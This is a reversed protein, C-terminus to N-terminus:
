TLADPDSPHGGHRLLPQLNGGVEQEADRVQPEERVRQGRLACRDAIRDSDDRSLFYVQRYRRHLRARQGRTDRTASGRIPRLSHWSEMRVFAGQEVDLIDISGEE